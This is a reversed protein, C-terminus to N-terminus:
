QQYGLAWIPPLTGTGSLWAYAEVVQKPAPGYLFYYDLPGNAAGFSYVNPSEKGFDFSSRWTNDLFVGFARGARFALFYPIAKYIPDTSEQFSYADTNWLSFAQERRDLPGTKDGLGFYHEDLPMTKYVRFSEGRFEIPQADQQLINGDHDSITLGFTQRDVSVRLKDTQFGVEEATEVPKVAARSQSAEKLVAWSADEALQPSRSVRIRVVEPRLALIQMRADGSRVDIGDPLSAFSTVHKLQVLTDGFGAQAWLASTEVLFFFYILPLVLRTRRRM